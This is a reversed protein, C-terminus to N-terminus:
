KGKPISLLEVVIHDTPKTVVERLCNCNFTVCLKTYSQFLKDMEKQLDISGDVGLLTIVVKGALSIEKEFCINNQCRDFRTYSPMNELLKECMSAATDIINILMIDGVLNQSETIFHLVLM